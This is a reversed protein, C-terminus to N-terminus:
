LRRHELVPFQRRLRATERHDIDATVIGEGAGEPMAAIVRGWPDVIMSHGFTRRGNPHRGDQAAAVVWALNEIARARLLIEWHARGTAETFAAPVSFVNAGDAALRRYLEPFRLDYCITLGLVGAPSAATVVEDGAAHYHSERYSEAGGPVDVDFLHLKRYVAELRGDSGFVVTAGSARGPDESRLPLSGAVIQLELRRALGALRQQVPGSGAAEAVGLRDEDSSAFFACNEPLIAVRCGRERAEGLLREIARLNADIDDGSNLQVAAVRCGQAADQGGPLEAM